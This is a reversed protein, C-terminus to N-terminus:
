KPVREGRECRYRFEGAGLTMSGHRAGEKAAREGLSAVEKRRGQECLWATEYERVKKWGSIPANPKGEDPNFLLVWGGLLIVACAHRTMVRADCACVGLTLRNSRAPACAAPEVEPVRTLRLFATAGVAAHLSATEHRAQIGRQRLADRARRADCDGGTVPPPM